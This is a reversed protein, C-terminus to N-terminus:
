TANQYMLRYLYLLIIENNKARLKIFEIYRPEM